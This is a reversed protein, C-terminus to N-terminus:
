GRERWKLVVKEVVDLYLYKNGLVRLLHIMGKDRKFAEKCELYQNYREKEAAIEKSERYDAIDQETIAFIKNRNKSIFSRLLYQETANSGSIGSNRIRYQLGIEPINGVKYKGSALVRTLFDYDECHPVQRYGKMTQYVEKRVMWTPHALCSGWPMCARIKKEREPFRMQDQIVNGAEDILRIHAGVVDLGQREMYGLQHELRKPMSIDDADMRAVYAGHVLGLAKNLSKVLGINVENTYVHVREDQISELYVRLMENKPNDNIIIFEINQYSQELISSISKNLEDETENYTSMIVSILKDQIM